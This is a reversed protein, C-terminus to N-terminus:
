RDDKLDSNKNKISSIGRVVKCTYPNWQPDIDNLETFITHFFGGSKLFISNSMVLFLCKFNTTLNNKVLNLCTVVSVHLWVTFPLYNNLKDM